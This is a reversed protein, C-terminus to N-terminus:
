AKARRADSMDVSGKAARSMKCARFVDAAIRLAGRTGWGTSNSFNMFARGSWELIPKKGLLDAIIAFQEVDDIVKPIRQFGLEQWCDKVIEYEFANFTSVTLNPLERGAKM